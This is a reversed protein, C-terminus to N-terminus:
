PICRRRSASRACPWSAMGQHARQALAARWGPCRIGARRRPGQRARPILRQEQQAELARALDRDDVARLTVTRRGYKTKPQRFVLGGRQTQELAQEVRLVGAALDVDKWRLGLLESRRLGTGLAVAVIPYLPKGQLAALVTQIQSRLSSRSRARKSARRTSWAPSTAAVVGWQLAHKLMTFVVRHLMSAPAIPLGTARWRPMSRRFTLPEYNRSRWRGAIAACMSACCSRMDRGPKIASM